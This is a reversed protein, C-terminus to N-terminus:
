PSAPFRLALKKLMMIILVEDDSESDIIEFFPINASPDHELSDVNEANQPPVSIPNNEDTPVNASSVIFDPITPDNVEYSNVLNHVIKEFGCEIECNEGAHDNECSSNLDFQIPSNKKSMIAPSVIDFAKVELIEDLISKILEGAFKEIEDLLCVEDDTSENLPQSAIQQSQGDMRVFHQSSPDACTIDVMENLM